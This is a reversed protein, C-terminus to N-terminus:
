INTFFHYWSYLVKGSKAKKFKLQLGIDDDQYTRTLGTLTVKTKSSDNWKLHQSQVAKVVLWTIDILKRGSWKGDNCWRVENFVIKVTMCKEDLTFGDTSINLMAEKVKVYQFSVTVDYYIIITNSDEEIIPILYTATKQRVLSDINSNFTANQVRM